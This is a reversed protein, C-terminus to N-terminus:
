PRKRRRLVVAVALIGAGFLLISSPEPVPSPSDATFAEASIPPSPELDSAPLKELEYGSQGAAVFGEVLRSGSGGFGHSAMGEGSFAQADVQFDQEPQFTDGVVYGFNGALAAGSPQAWAAAVLTLGVMTLGALRLRM